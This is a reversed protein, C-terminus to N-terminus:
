GMLIGPGSHRYQAVGSRLRLIPAGPTRERNPQLCLRSRLSRDTEVRVACSESLLRWAIEVKPLVRYIMACLLTIVAFSVALNLIQALVNM